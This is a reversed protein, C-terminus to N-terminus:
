WVSGDRGRFFAFRVFELFVRPEEFTDVMVKQFMNEVVFRVCQALRAEGFNALVEYQVNGFGDGASDTELVEDAGV